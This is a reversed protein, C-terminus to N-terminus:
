RPRDHVVQESSRACDVKGNAIRAPFAAEVERAKTYGTYPRMLMTFRFAAEMFLKATTPKGM